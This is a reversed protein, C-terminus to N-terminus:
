PLKVRCARCNAQLGDVTRHLASYEGCPKVQHMAYAITICSLRDLQKPIGERQECVATASLCSIVPVLINFNNHWLSCMAEFSSTCIPTTGAEGTLITQQAQNFMYPLLQQPWGSLQLRWLVKLCRQGAFICLRTWQQLKIMEASSGDARFAIHEYIPMHFFCTLNQMADFTNTAHLSTLCACAASQVSGAIAVGFRPIRDVVPVGRWLRCV